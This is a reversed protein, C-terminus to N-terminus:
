GRRRKIAESAKLLLQRENETLGEMGVRPIKALIADMQAELQEDEGRAPAPNRAALVFLVAM